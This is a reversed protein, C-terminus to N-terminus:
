DAALLERIEDAYLTEKELLRKALRELADRHEEMQQGVHEDIGALLSQIEADILRATEDSFDPPHAMERGLFIQDDDRVFAAAGITENMGWHSVM